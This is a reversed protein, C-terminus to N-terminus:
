LMSLIMIALHVLTVAVIGPIISHSQNYLYSLIATTILWYLYTRIWLLLQFPTFVVTMLLGFLVASFFGTGIQGARKAGGRFINLRFVGLFNLGFFIVILGSVVNVIVQYKTLLSGLFGAFAGM